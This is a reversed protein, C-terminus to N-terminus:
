LQNLDILMDRMDIAVTRLAESLYQHGTKARISQPGIKVEVGVLADQATVRRFVM